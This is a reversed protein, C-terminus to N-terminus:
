MCTHNWHVHPYLNVHMHPYLQNWTVYMCTYLECACTPIIPELNVHVHSELSVEEIDLDDTLVMAEKNDVTRVPEGVFLQEPPVAASCLLKVQHDYMTDIMTIFRRAEVRMQTTLRPIDSIFVTDFRRSIELYDAASLPASCLDRFAFMAFPGAALPVTLKRGLFELDTSGPVLILTATVPLFRVNTYTSNCLNLCSYFVIARINVTSCIHSFVFM